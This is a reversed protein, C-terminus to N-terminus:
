TPEFGVTIDEDIFRFECTSNEYKPWSLRHVSPNGWEVFAIFAKHMFHGIRDIVEPGLGQIFGASQWREFNNFNFPLDPCQTAGLRSALKDAGLDGGFAAINDAVLRLAVAQDDLWLNECDGMGSLYGSAGLRYNIRAVVMDGDGAFTDGAYYPVKWIGGPPGATYWVM